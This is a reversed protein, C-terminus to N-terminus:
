YSVTSSSGYKRAMVIHLTQCLVKLFVFVLNMNRKHTKNDNVIEEGLIQGWNRTTHNWVELLVLYVLIM